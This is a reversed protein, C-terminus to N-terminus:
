KIEINFKKLAATSSKPIRLELVGYRLQATTGKLDYDERITFHQKKATGRQKYEISVRHGEASVSADTPAVGPLDLFLMMCNDSEETRYNPGNRVASSTSTTELQQRTSFFDGFLDDIINSSTVSPRKPMNSRYLALM